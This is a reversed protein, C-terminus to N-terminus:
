PEHTLWNLRSPLGLGVLCKRFSNHLHHRCFSLWPQGRAKLHTRECICVHISAGVCVCAFIFWPPCCRLNVEPRWMCVSTQRCICVCISLCFIRFISLLKFYFIFAALLYFSNLCYSKLTSKKEM